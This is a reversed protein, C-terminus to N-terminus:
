TSSTGASNSARADLPSAPDAAEAKQADTLADTPMQAPDVEFPVQEANIAQVWKIYIAWGLRYMFDFLQRATMHDRRGWGTAFDILPRKEKGDFRFVIDDTASLVNVFEDVKAREDESLDTISDFLAKLKTKRADTYPSFPLFKWEIRGEFTYDNENM